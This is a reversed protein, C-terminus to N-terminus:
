AISCRRSGRRAPPLTMGSISLELVGESGRFGARRITELIKEGTVSDDSMRVAAREAALNVEAEVGPLRRLVKEIRTACAACTMGALPLDLSRDAQGTQRNDHNM